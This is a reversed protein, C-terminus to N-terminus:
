AFGGNVPLCQGSVWRAASTALFVVV